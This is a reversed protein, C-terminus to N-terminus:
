FDGSFVDFGRTEPRDPPQRLGWRSSGRKAYIERNKNVVIEGRPPAGTNEDKVLRHHTDQPRHQPRRRRFFGGGGAEAVREEPSQMGTSTGRMPAHRPPLGEEDEFTGPPAPAETFDFQGLYILPEDDSGAQAFLELWDDQFEFSRTTPLEDGAFFLIKLENDGLRRYGIDYPIREVLTQVKFVYTAPGRKLRQYWAAGTCVASKANRTDFEIQDDNLGLESKMLERVIPLKSSKGALIAHKIEGPARELDLAIRKFLGYAQLVTARIPERIRKELEDYTMGVKGLNPPEHRSSPLAHDLGQIVIRKHRSEDGKSGAESLLKKTEECRLWLEFFLGRSNERMEGTADRFRTPVLVNVDDALEPSIDGGGEIAQETEQAQALLQECAQAFVDDVEFRQEEAQEAISIALRWKIVKFVELTVNDGGYAPNGTGGLIDVQIEYRRKKIDDKRDHVKGKLLSIDITGGGFDYALLTFDDPYLVMINSIDGVGSQLHSNDGFSAKQSQTIKGNLFWLAAASAEDLDMNIRNRAFKLDRTLIKRLATVRPFSFMTPFTVVVDQIDRELRDEALILLKEIIYRCLEDYSFRVFKQQHQQRNQFTHAENLGLMRKASFVYSDSPTNPDTIPMLADQGIHYDPEGTPGVGHIYIVSAVSDADPDQAPRVELLLPKISLSGAEIAVCSSNTTGFDLAFVGRFVPRNRINEFLIHIEDIWSGYSAEVQIELTAEARGDEEPFFPSTEEIVIYFCKTEDAEIEIEVSHCETDVTIWEQKPRFTCRVPEEYPNHVEVVKRVLPRPRKSRYYTKVNIARPLYDLPM